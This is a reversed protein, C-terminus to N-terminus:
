WMSTDSPILIPKLIEITEDFIRRALSADEVKEKWVYRNPKRDYSLIVGSKGPPPNETMIWAATRGSQVPTSTDPLLRKIAPLIWLWLFRELATWDRALGTGPM